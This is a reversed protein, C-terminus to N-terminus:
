KIGSNLSTDGSNEHTRISVSRGDTTIEVAGDRDTRFLRIGANEYRALVDKDPLGYRNGSGVSLVAIRPGVAKLFLPSSSTRSGHHPVKLVLGAPDPVAKVIAEEAAAGIDAALLISFGDLKIGLVMSLDNDAPGEEPLPAAPHLVEVLVKGERLTEGRLWATQVTGPRLLRKLERYALDGAPRYTEHFEGVKFNRAVAKLGNLHDPHSHTLVLHDLRKIGKRWLFPSVVREGIDFKDGPVGGGDVLMKRRGPFEVLISDGQGVDLVTIRLGPSSAPPFPYTVILIFVASFGALIAVKAKKNKLPRLFALLLLYYAIILIPHPAPIRYSMIRVPDLLGAIWVFGKLGFRLVAALWGALASSVFAAPFFIYGGAMLLAVLPIAPLNLLFSSFTVRNFTAALVPLVGLQAATTLATMEGIKFPLRPMRKLLPAYFLLIGLTALYTLQFGADFIQFPNLFLIALASAAITNLLHVDKWLLKGAFFAVAMVTARVVSANGEVLLAYGALVFTLILYSPRTGIRALRLLFFLLAAIIGIHAGSIALLHYLGSRQLVLNVSEDLRGREGILLAELVGGETSLGPPPGQGFHAEIKRQLAQRASSIPGLVFAWPGTGIKKVLLPSKSTATAHIKRNRLVQLYPPPAFNRDSVSTGIRASVMIRDGTRLPSLPNEASFPVTVRLNGSVASTVTGTAVADVKLYLTDKDAGRGPSQTLTGYFDVFSDLRLCHLGNEKYNRDQQTFILGGLLLSVALITGFCAKEKKRWSFLWAATLSAALPGAWAPVPLSLHSATVIGLVFAAAIFLLPFAM